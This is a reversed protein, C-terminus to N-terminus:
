VGDPGFMVLDLKLAAFASETKNEFLLYARCAGSDTNELKNLEIRVLDQAADDQAAVPWSAFLLAMALLTGCGARKSFSIMIKTEKGVRRRPSAGGVRLGASGCSDGRPFM